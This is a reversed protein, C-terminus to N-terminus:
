VKWANQNQRAFEVFSIPARGLIQEVDPTREALTGARTVQYLVSLYDVNTEPLGNELAGQRMAADSISQYAITRGSVESIIAAVQDHGLATPGTLNYAQGAHGAGTLAAVAVAAIDQVAIFSTEAEEAAVFIGGGGQIMPAIFGGSFNDMFFNPRLITLGIGSAELLREVKRLPAEENHEVGFASTFVVQRIGAQQAARIVPALVAPAEPDLPLAILFLKEVKDLAPAFSTPDAFDFRVSEVRSSPAQYQAPKRVGVRVWHGNAVLQRTVESGLLGTAGIVLISSKM